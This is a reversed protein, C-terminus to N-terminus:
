ETTCLLFLFTGNVICTCFTTTVGWEDIFLPKVNNYIAFNLTLFIIQTEEQNM